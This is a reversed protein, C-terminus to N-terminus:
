AVRQLVPSGSMCPALEAPQAPREFLTDAGFKEFKEKPMSTPIFAAFFTDPVM